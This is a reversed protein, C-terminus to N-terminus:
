RFFKNLFMLGKPGSKEPHFQCAFVNDVLVSSCFDFGSYRTKTFIHNIDDPEVIYSHVFYYHDKEFSRSMISSKINSFSTTENKIITNWGVHPVTVNPIYKSLNEVKGNIINLGECDTFETSKSFLLQLGLCIGMFPKGSAIFEKIPQILNLQYLHKMAEPFSGVGPLVAGDAALIEKSNSTVQSNYGLTDLANKISFINSMRYDIIAINIAKGM